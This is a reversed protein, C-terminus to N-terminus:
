WTLGAPCSGTGGTAATATGTLGMGTGCSRSTTGDAAKNITFYNGSLSMGNVTYTSAASATVSVRGGVTPLAGAPDVTLGTNTPATCAANNYAQTDAYCSEIQSVLNRVNSKANADQGKQRQNLFAPLAIAALIGIILIVVLLEILTFGREDSQIRERIRRLM